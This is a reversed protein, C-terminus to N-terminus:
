SLLDKILTVAENGYEKKIVDEMSLDDPSQIIHEDFKVIDFGTINDWFPKLHIGFIEAFEHDYRRYKKDNEGILTMWTLQEINM